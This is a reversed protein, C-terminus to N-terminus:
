GNLDKERKKHNGNFKLAIDRLEEPTFISINKLDMM